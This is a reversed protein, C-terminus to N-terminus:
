SGVRQGQVRWSGGAQLEPGQAAHRSGVAEGSRCCEELTWLVVGWVEDLPWQVEWQVDEQVAQELLELGKEATALEQRLEALNTMAGPKLCRPTPRSRYGGKPAGGQKVVHSRAVARAAVKLPPLPARPPQQPQMSPAGPYHGGGGGGAALQDIYHAVDPPIHTPSSM